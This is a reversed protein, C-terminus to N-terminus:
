EHHRRRKIRLSTLLRIIRKRHMAAGHNGPRKIVTHQEKRNNRTLLAELSIIMKLLMKHKSTNVPVSMFYYVWKM